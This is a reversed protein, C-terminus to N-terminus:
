CFLLFTYYKNQKMSVQFYLGFPRRIMCFQARRNKCQLCMSAFFQSDTRVIWNKVMKMCSELSVLVSFFKINLVNVLPWLPQNIVLSSYKQLFGSHSFYLSKRSVTMERKDIANEHTTWKNRFAGKCRSYRCRLHKDCFCICIWLSLYALKTARIKRYIHMIMVYCVRNM